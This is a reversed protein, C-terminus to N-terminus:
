RLKVVRASEVWAATRARVLYIGSPLAAGGEGTGDWPLSHSGPSGLFTGLDRVRRGAVDLVELSIDMARPLRYRVTAGGRFPSPAVRLGYAKQGAPPIGATLSTSIVAFQPGAVGALNLPTRGLLGYGGGLGPLFQNGVTGDPRVLMAMVGVDPGPGSLFLDAYPLLMEWGLSASAAATASAATVGATNSDNLAVAMGAPNDGGSLAGDLSNVLAAGMYRKTGGGATALTYHDVYLNGSWANIWLLADPQFGPDLTLGDLEALGSPPATFASTRLTNQGGARTDLLLVLATGDSPLNGTIGVRLGQSDPKVYLQDLEAQNDGMATANDQTAVLALAGHDAPINRGDQPGAVVPRPTVGARLVAWGHSGLHLPYAARNLTTLAALTGGGIVDLVPTSGGPVDFKTLDLTIDAATGSLNIAVLLTEQGAHQRAFAWVAASSNPVEAYAGRRLASHARRLAILSRYTELLSGAAGQQEEVSRGDNDKAFRGSYAQSNLIWYNSMPSGAVAKWKFPERMPIDNADSGYNQKTGRMGLEDGFYIVPPFPQTMQIAAAVKARGTSNGLNSALRDVDHDGLTCLYTRGAPLSALTARMESYLGSANASSIASRAAFLFPKTFAADHANLFESGHSGWDGQEAFTFVDPNVAQLGAKWRLWWALHYGNGEDLVVHDLRYGDIGESLSQDGRPDLWHRCWSILTDGAPGHNLNWTITGVRAGNWSNYAGGSFASNSGNTYVLFPTWPSAPRNYSDLFMTSSQSLQYSVFDLYVKVTDAHAASVFSRFQTESGFSPNLLSAEGHQYGHYAPSPFVPTMWVSTVGLYKLYPLAATMGGFDGFRSADNDSDRWAIPMYSYFIDDAVDRAARAPTSPQSLLMVMACLALLIPRRRSAACTAAIMCGSQPM